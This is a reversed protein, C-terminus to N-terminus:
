ESYCAFIVEGGDPESVYERYLCVYYVTRDRGNGNVIFCDEEKTFILYNVKVTKEKSKIGGRQRIVKM